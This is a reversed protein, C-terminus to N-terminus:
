INRGAPAQYIRLADANLRVDEEPILDEIDVEGSVNEIQTRREDSYKM